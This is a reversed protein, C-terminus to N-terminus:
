HSPMISARDRHRQVITTTRWNENTSVDRLWGGAPMQHPGVRLAGRSGDRAPHTAPGPRMEEKHNTHTTMAHEGSAAWLPIGSLDGSNWTRDYHKGRLSKGPM